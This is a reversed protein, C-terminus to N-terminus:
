LNLFTLIRGAQIKATKNNKIFATATEAKANLETQPKNLVNEIARALDINDNGEVAYMYEYYEEPIGGLKYGIMPTGSSLYEMTKSPFSYKTLSLTPKRPNIVATAERQLRVAEERAVLGKYIIRSDEDAKEQIYASDSGGGCIILRFDPNKTLIFSDVLERISAQPGLVGTYVLSRISNDQHPTFIYDNSGAIGEVIINKGISQPIKEEMPKSLLIYKDVYDYLARITKESRKLQITKLFSVKYIPNFYDDVLDTVITSLILKPYNIKLQKAASTVPADINYTLVAVKESDAYNENLWRDIEKYAHRQISMEKLGVVNCYSVANAKRCNPLSFEGGPTFLAMYHHPFCGLCPFTIVDFDANNECLGQMVAKQFVDTAGGLSVKSQRKLEPMLEEPLISSIFLLKM